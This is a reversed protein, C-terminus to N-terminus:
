TKRRRRRTTTPADEAGADPDPLRAALMGLVQELKDLRADTAASHIGDPYGDSKAKSGSKKSDAGLNVATNNRGPRAHCSEGYIRVGGGTDRPANYIAVTDGPKISSGCSFCRPNEPWDFRPPGFSRPRSNNANDAM